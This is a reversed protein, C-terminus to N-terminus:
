VPNKLLISGYAFLDKGLNQASMSGLPATDIPSIAFMEFVRLHHQSNEAECGSIALEDEIGPYGGTEIHRIRLSHSQNL